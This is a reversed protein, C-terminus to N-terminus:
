ASRCECYYHRLAVELCRVYWQRVSGPRRCRSAVCTADEDRASILSGARRSLRCLARSLWFVAHRLVVAFLSLCQPHAGLLISVSSSAGLDVSARDSSPFVFTAGGRSIRQVVCRTARIVGCDGSLDSIGFITVDANSKDRNLVDKDSQQGIGRAVREFEDALHRCEDRRPGARGRVPECDLSSTIHHSNDLSGFMVPSNAFLAERGTLKNQVATPCLETHALCTSGCGSCRVIAAPRLRRKHPGTRRAASAQFRPDRVCTPPHTARSLSKDVVRSPMSPKSQIAIALNGSECRPTRLVPAAHDAYRLKPRQFGAARM